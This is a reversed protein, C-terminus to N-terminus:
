WHGRFFTVVLPGDQLLEASSVIKGDQDPLRFAPATDGEGTARAEIGSAKLEATVHHMLAVAEAPAQREFGERIADLRQKLRSM